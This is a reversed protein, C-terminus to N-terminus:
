SAAEAACYRSGWCMFSVDHLVRKIEGEREHARSGGCNRLLAGRGGAPVLAALAELLPLRLHELAHFLAHLRHLLGVVAQSLRLVLLGRARATRLASGAPVHFAAAHPGARVLRPRGCWGFSASAQASERAKKIEGAAGVGVRETFRSVRLPVPSSRSAANKAVIKAGSRATKASTASTKGSRARTRASKRASRARARRMAKRSTRDCRAATKGASASIRGFTRGTRASTGRTRPRM